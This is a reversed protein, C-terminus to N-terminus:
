AAPWVQGARVVWPRVPGAHRRRRRSWVHRRLLSGSAMVGHDRHQTALAYFIGGAVAIVVFAIFLLNLAIMVASM